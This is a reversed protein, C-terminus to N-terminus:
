VREGEGVEAGAGAEVVTGCAEHGFVAPLDGGWAGAALAVDSHCIGVAELRVRVEGPGPPDLEIEEVSLPAGFDHCVAARPMAGRVKRCAAPREGRAPRGARGGAPRPRGARRRALRYAARIDCSSARRAATRGVRSSYKMSSATAVRSRAAQRRRCTPAIRTASWRIM